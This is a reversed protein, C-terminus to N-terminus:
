VPRISAPGFTRKRGVSVRHSSAVAFVGMSRLTRADFDIIAPHALLSRLTALDIPPSWLPWRIIREDEFATTRVRHRRPFCPLCALAEFALRNAGWMSPIAKDRGKSPDSARLAYRRDEISDWRFSRGEDEYRWPSFLANRLQNTTVQKRLDHMFGIFNQNSDGTIACLATYAIEKQTGGADSALGVMFDASVRTGKSRAARAVPELANERLQQRSVGKINKWDAPLM